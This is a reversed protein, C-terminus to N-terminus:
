GGILCVWGGRALLDLADHQERELHKGPGVATGAAALGAGDPSTSTQFLDARAAAIV